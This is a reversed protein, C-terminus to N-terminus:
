EANNTQEEQKQKPAGFFIFAILILGSGSLFLGRKVHKETARQAYTRLMPVTENPDSSRSLIETAMRLEQRTAMIEAVGDEQSDTGLIRRSLRELLGPDNKVQELQLNYAKILREIEQTNEDILNLYDINKYNQVIEDSLISLAIASAGVAFFICFFLYRVISAAKKM